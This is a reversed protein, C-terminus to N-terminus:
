VEKMQKEINSIWNRMVQLYDPLRAYISEALSENYTHVTLNRQNAMEMAVRSDEQSLIQIKWSFRIVGKPSFSEIAEMERLYIQAAKWVAEFTYEFRQIAADRAMVSYPTELIEKFSDLARKAIVLREKLREM